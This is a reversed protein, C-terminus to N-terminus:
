TITDVAGTSTAIFYAWAESDADNSGTFGPDGAVNQVASTDIVGGGPAQEYVTTAAVAAGGALAIVAAGALSKLATKLM